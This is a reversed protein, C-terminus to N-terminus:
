DRLSVIRGALAPFDKPNETLLTADLDLAAAAILSDTASIQIGQRRFHSRMRGAELGHLRTLSVCDIQEFFRIWCPEDTARLGRWYETLQVPTVTAVNEERLLRTLRDVTSPVRRGLDILVSTDLM